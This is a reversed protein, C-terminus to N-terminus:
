SRSRKAKKGVLKKKRSLVKETGRRSLKEGHSFGGTRNGVSGYTNM